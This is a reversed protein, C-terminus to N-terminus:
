QPEIKSPPFDGSYIFLSDDSYPHNYGRSDGEHSASTSTSDANPNEIENVVEGMTPRDAGVDEVCRMALDVFKYLGGLTIGLITPDLLENLNYGVQTKDM